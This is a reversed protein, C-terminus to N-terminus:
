DFTSRLKLTKLLKEGSLYAQQILQANNAAENAHFLHLAKLQDVIRYGLSTLTLDMSEATFGMDKPDKQECVAIINAYKQKGLENKNIWVSRDTQDFSLLCYCRDFFAKVISTVNYFYTPSGLILADAKQLLPYLQQMDDNIVCNHDNQTCGECGRCGQFDLDGLFILNTIFTPDEAFPRLAAQVLKATNGAKRKSGVIGLIHM